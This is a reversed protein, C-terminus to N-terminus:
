WDRAVTTLRNDFRMASDPSRAPRRQNSVKVAPRRDLPDGDLLREFHTQVWSDHAELFPALMGDATTALLHVREACRVRAITAVWSAIDRQQGHRHDAACMWWVECFVGRLVHGAQTPDPLDAQIAAFTPPALEQYLGRVRITLYRLAENGTHVTIRGAM